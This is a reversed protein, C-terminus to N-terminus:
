MIRPSTPFKPGPVVWLIRRKEGREDSRERETEGTEERGM